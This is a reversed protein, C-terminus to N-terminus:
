GAADQDRGRRWRTDADLAAAREAAARVEDWPMGRVDDPVPVTGAVEVISPIRTVVARGDEVRFLVADGTGLGLAERVAKPVTVQGKSTMRAIADM